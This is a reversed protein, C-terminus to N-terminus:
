PDQQTSLRLRYDSKSESLGQLDVSYKYSKGDVQTCSGTGSKLERTNAKAFRKLHRVPLDM